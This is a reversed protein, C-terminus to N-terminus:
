SQSGVRKNRDCWDSPYVRVHEGYKRMLAAQVELLGAGANLILPSTSSQGAGNTAMVEVLIRGDPLARASSLNFMVLLGGVRVTTSPERRRRAASRGTAGDGAAIKTAARNLSAALVVCAIRSGHMAEMEAAWEEQKTEKVREPLRGVARRYLKLSIWRSVAPVEYAAVAFLAVVIGGAGLLESPM